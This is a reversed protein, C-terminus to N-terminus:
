SKGAEAIKAGTVTLFAGPKTGSEEANVLQDADYLVKFNITEEPRPHHHHGIIDCVEEIFEPPYDLDKLIKRAVPPGETEQFEASASKYKEEANKIGIDHLLAAAIVLNPDAAPEEALIMLAYEETRKAHKIRREDAGFYADMAHSLAQKRLLKKMSTYQSLKKEGVCEKAHKCWDLCSQMGPRFVTKKCAPCDGMAEDSWIEVDRGCSPCRFMDPKPQVVGM